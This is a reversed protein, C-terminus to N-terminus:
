KSALIRAKLEELARDRQPDTGAARQEETIEVVVDPTLGVGDITREKPTFWRAITVRMISGDSLSQPIQVSGKGFTTVGVLPAREADQIAGAVIESASASGENVLLVLPLETTVPDGSSKYIEESGDKFRENLVVSEDLFIGAVKVAERLLGGSNGRLDLILGQAGRQVADEVAQKVLAGANENFTYLRIYGIEGDEGLAETTVTPSEIQARVVEVEYPASPTAEAAAVRQITLTATSGRPGRIRAVASNLDTGVVSEGDVALILDGRRIGANWAPQNEFPEVVKLTNAETDWEVRAGIGEFSGAINTRFLDAEAPELFSTNPDGLRAVVGRIADYTAEKGDPLAGYFNGYLVDMAEWFTAFQTDLDARQAQDAASGTAASYAVPVTNASLRGFGFGLGAGLAFVLLAAVAALMGYLLIGSHREAWSRTEADATAPKPQPSFSNDPTLLSTGERQTAIAVCANVARNYWLIRATRRGCELGPLWDHWPVGM